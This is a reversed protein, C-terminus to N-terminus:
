VCIYTDVSCLKRANIWHANTKKINHNWPSNQSEKFMNRQQIVLAWAKPLTLSIWEWHMSFDICKEMSFYGSPHYFDLWYYHKKFSYDKAHELIIEHTKKTQTKTDHKVEKSVHRCQIHVILSFVFCFVTFFSHLLLCPALHLLKFTYAIANSTAKRFQVKLPQIVSQKTEMQSYTHQPRTDM